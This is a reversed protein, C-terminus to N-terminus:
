ARVFALAFTATTATGLVIQWRLYRRVTANNALAVIGAKPTVSANLAGSTAGALDAFSANLNTAADQVQITVTGDSTFLQYCLFGGNSSSAGNDDLGIASNVDIEAGKAHLLIGWPKVYQLSQSTNHSVGFPVSAVVREADLAGQYAGQEFEGCFTPVGAVPELTGGLVVMVVRLVGAGSMVAHLGVDATNDFFANLKGPSITAQGPGIINKVQDTLAADPTAAFEWKLEGIQRIYGSFDYGDAYFRSYRDLIRGM